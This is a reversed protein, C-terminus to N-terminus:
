YVLKRTASLNGDFVRFLYMGHSFASLDLTGSSEVTRKSFVVKGLIDAIEIDVFKAGPSYIFYNVTSEVNNKTLSIINLKGGDNINVAVLPSYQFTGDFDTQRLRYASVGQVPNDDVARYNLLVHSNGAGKVKKAITTFGVGDRTREVTFFDNNVESATTWLLEVDRGNYIANFRVLEVPLIRSSRSAASDYCGNGGSVIVNYYSSDTGIVLTDNTAGSLLTYNKYWQYSSYTSPTAFLTDWNASHTITPAAPTSLVTVTSTGTATCGSVGTVTVSYTTTATPTAVPNAVTTSSLGTSPTWAYSAGGSAGSLTVSNGSCITSNSLSVTPASVVSIAVTTTATCNVSNTVTVTYTTSVSPSAVPNSISSNSLGSSPSWSYTTGGTATMQINSSVSCVTTDPYAALVASGCSIVSYEIDRYVQGLKKGTAKDYETVLVCVVFVGITAPNVTIFGNQANIYLTSSSGIMNTSTYTPTNWVVNSYPKIDPCSSTTFLATTNGNLPTVLSYVLSDGDADTASLDSVNVQGSCWYAAPYSSFVPTSNHLSPDPIEAYWEEGASGPNSLNAITTNRCCRGWSLYYGNSNNPITVDTEYSRREVCLGPPTYCANGLTVSTSTTSTITVCQQQANTVLDYIGLTISADFAATGATCDRYFNLKIHYSNGSNWTVAFEGGVIHSALSTFCFLLFTAVLM